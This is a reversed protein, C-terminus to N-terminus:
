EPSQEPEYREIKLLVGALPHDIYHLEGIKMRRSSKFEVWEAPVLLASASEDNALLTNASWDPNRVKFDINTHLYLSLHLRLQGSLDASESQLQLWPAISKDMGKIAFSQHAVVDYGRQRSLSYAQKTLIYDAKDLEIVGEPLSEPLPLDASLPELSLTEETFVAPKTLWQEEVEPSKSTTFAVVELQYWKEEEAAAIQPLCGFFLILILYKALTDPLLKKM